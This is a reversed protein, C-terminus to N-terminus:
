RSYEDRYTDITLVPEKGKVSSLLFAEDFLRTLEEAEARNFYIAFEPSKTISKNSGSEVRAPNQIASFYPSKDKFLYGMVIVPSSQYTSSIPLPKWRFRGKFEGYVSRTKFYNTMLRQNEFDEKYRNLAEIFLQRGEKNWFQKYQGVSLDVELTVENERPYFFVEVAEIKVKASFPQDFSANVSGIMFPDIDAVMNPYKVTSNIHSCSAISITIICICFFNKM